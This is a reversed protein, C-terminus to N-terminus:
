YKVEVTELFQSMHVAELNASRDHLIQKRAPKATLESEFRRLREM